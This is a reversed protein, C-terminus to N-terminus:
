PHITKMYVLVTTTGLRFSPVEGMVVKRIARVRGTGLREGGDGFGNYSQFHKPTFHM